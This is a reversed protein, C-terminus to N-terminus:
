HQGTDIGSVQEHFVGNTPVLQRADITKQPSRQSRHRSSHRQPTQPTGKTAGVGRGRRIRFRQPRYGGWDVRQRYRDSRSISGM